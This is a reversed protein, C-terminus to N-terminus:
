RRPAGSVLKLYMAAVLNHPEADLVQNWASVAADVNGQAYLCLGLQNRAPHYGPKEKLATLLEDVASANDGLDRLAGALKVRLDVFRPGLAVGKRYEVVAEQLRGAARYADGVDAHMNAIKGAVHPDLDGPARRSAELARTYVATADDYKGIDNFLIALNLAAETYAPNVALAKKLAEEAKSFQGADHYIVGLMNFVDAFAESREAVQELLQRATALEHKAYYEKGLTLMQRLAEDM